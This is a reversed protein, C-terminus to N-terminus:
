TMYTARERESESKRKNDENEQTVEQKKKKRFKIKAGLNDKKKTEEFGGNKNGKGKFIAFFHVCLLVFIFWYVRSTKIDILKSQAQSQSLSSFFWDFSQKNESIKHLYGISYLYDIASWLYFVIKSVWVM